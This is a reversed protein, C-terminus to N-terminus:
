GDREEDLRDLAWSSAEFTKFEFPAVVPPGIAMERGTDFLTLFRIAHATLWYCREGGQADRATILGPRLGNVDAGKHDPFTRYFARAIPCAHPSGRQGYEIDEATVSITKDGLELACDISVNIVDSSPM